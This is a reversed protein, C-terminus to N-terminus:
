TLLANLDQIRYWEHPVVGFYEKIAAKPSTPMPTDPDDLHRQADEWWDAVFGFLAAEAEEANKHLSLDIGHETVLALLTMNM